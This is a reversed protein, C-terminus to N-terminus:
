SEGRFDWHSIDTAWCDNEDDELYEGIVPYLTLNKSPIAKYFTTHTELEIRDEKKRSVEFCRTYCEGNWGNLVYYNGNDAEVVELNNTHWYGRFDTLQNM